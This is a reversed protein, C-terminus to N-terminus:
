CNRFRYLHFLQYLCFLLRFHLGILRPVAQRLSLERVFLPV